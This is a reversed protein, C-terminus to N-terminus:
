RLSVAMAAAIGLGAVLLVLVVFIPWWALALLRRRVSPPEVASRDWLDQARQRGARSHMLSWRAALGFPVFAAAVLAASFFGVSHAAVVLVALAGLSLLAVLLRPLTRLGGRRLDAVLIPVALGLAIVAALLLLWKM